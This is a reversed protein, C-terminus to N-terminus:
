RRGCSRRRSGVRTSRSTRALVSVEEMQLRSYGRGGGDDQAELGHRVGRPALITSYFSTGWRSVRRRADFYGFFVAYVSM